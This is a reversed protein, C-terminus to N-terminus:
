LPIQNLDIAFDVCNLIGATETCNVTTAQGNTLVTNVAGMGGMRTAVLSTILRPSPMLDSTLGGSSHGWSGSAPQNMNWYTYYFPGYASSNLTWQLVQVGNDWCYTDGLYVVCHGISTYTKTPWGAQPARVETQTYYTLQMSVPAPSASPAPAAPLDDAIPEIARLEPSRVSTSPAGSGCATLVLLAATFIWNSQNM